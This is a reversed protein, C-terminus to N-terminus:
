EWHRFTFQIKAIQDLRRINRLENKFEFALYAVFQWVIVCVTIDLLSDVWVPLIDQLVEFRLYALIVGVLCFGFFFFFHNLMRTKEVAKLDSVYKRFGIIASEQISEDQEASSEFVTLTIDDKTSYLALSGKVETLLKDFMYNTYMVNDSLRSFFDSYIAVKQPGRNSKRRGIVIEDSENLEVTRSTRM